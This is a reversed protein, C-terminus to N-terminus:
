AAQESRRRALAGRGRSLKHRLSMILQACEAFAPRLDDIVFSDSRERRTLWGVPQAIFQGVEVLWGGIGNRRLRRLSALLNLGDLVVNRSRVGVRYAVPAQYRNHVLLDYLYLPFNVGLSVPLPLSGWFRANTELLVWELTKPNFRFEFMCVGTLKTYDCIKECAEYLAPNIAESERYSSAGAWGERLRRHQFAHLLRGKEALVSVGVGIGHFHGETLYRPRDHLGALVKAADGESEAIFVKGWGDLKDPWYSRRPKLVLPLGYAAVLGSATDSESLRRGPVIPVGCQAALERTLQKDFLLDIIAADPIAIPYAVFDERHMHFSLMARDDCCPIVLDYNESQLLQLVAARWSAPNDSYRPLRHVVDIYKSKLAPARWNFPVAHVEKGARGLSRAVALFIRTDDGFVLVREKNKKTM